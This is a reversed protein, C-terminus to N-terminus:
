SERALLALTVLQTPGQMVAFTLSSALFSQYHRSVPDAIPILNVAAAIGLCTIQVLGLASIQLRAKLALNLRKVSVLSFTRQLPLGITSAGM